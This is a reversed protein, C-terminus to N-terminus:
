FGLQQQLDLIESLIGMMQAQKQKIQDVIVQNFGTTPGPEASGGAAAAMAQASATASQSQALQAELEFVRARLADVEENSAGGSSAAAPPAETAAAKPESCVPAPAPAEEEDDGRCMESPRIRNEPFTVAKGEPLVVYYRQMDNKIDKLDGILAPIWDGGKTQVEVFQKLTYKTDGAGRLQDRPITLPKRKKPIGIKYKKGDVVKVVGNVWKSQKKSWIFVEEDVSFATLILKPAHGSGPPSGKKWGTTPIPEGGAFNAKCKYMMKTQDELWRSKNGFGWMEKEPVCFVWIPQNPNKYRPSDEYVGAFKYSGNLKKFGAGIVYLPAWEIEAAM